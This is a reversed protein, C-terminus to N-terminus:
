KTTCTQSHFLEIKWKWSFKSPNEMKAVVKRTGTGYFHLLKKDQKWIVGLLNKKSSEIFHQLVM